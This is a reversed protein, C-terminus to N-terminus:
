NNLYVIISLVTAIIGWLVYPLVLLSAKKNLLLSELLTLTAFLFNLLTFVYGLFLSHKVFFFYPFMFYSLYTLTYFLLVRAYDKKDYSKRKEFHYVFFISICVDIISWVIPFVISPLKPGKLSHYFELDPKFILTPLIFLFLVFLFLLIRKLWKMIYVEIVNYADNEFIHLYICVEM